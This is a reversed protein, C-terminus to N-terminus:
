LFTLCYVAIWYHQICSFCVFHPLDPYSFLPAFCYQVSTKCFAYFFMSFVIIFSVSFLSM